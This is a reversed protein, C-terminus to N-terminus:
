LNPAQDSGYFGMQTAAFLKIERHEICLLDAGALGDSQDKSGLFVPVAEFATGTKQKDLNEISLLKGSKSWAYARGSV